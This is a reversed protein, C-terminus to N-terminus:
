LALCVASCATTVIGDRSRFAFGPLSRMLSNLTTRLSPFPANPVTYWTTRLLSPFVYASLFTFMLAMDVRSISSASFSIRKRADTCWGLM